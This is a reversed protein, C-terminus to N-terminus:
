LGRRDPAPYNRPRVPQPCQRRCRPRAPGSDREVAPAIASHIKGPNAHLVPAAIVGGCEVEGAGAGALRDHEHSGHVSVALGAEQEREVETDKSTEAQAVAFPKAACRRTPTVIVEFVISTGYLAIPAIRRIGGLRGFDLDDELRGALVVGVVGLNADDTAPMEGAAVPELLAFLAFFEHHVDVVLQNAGGVKGTRMVRNLLMEERRMDGGREDEVAFLGLGQDLPHALLPQALRHLHHEPGLQEAFGCDSQAGVNGACRLLRAAFLFGAAEFLLVGLQHGLAFFVVRRQTALLLFGLVVLVFESPQRALLFLLLFLQQAAPGTDADRSLCGM